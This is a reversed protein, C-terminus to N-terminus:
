FLAFGRAQADFDFPFIELLLVVLRLLHIGDSPEGAADGVVEVVHQRGDESIALQQELIGVQRGLRVAAVDAFDLLGALRRRLQRTLEQREAPASITSGVIRSTLPM